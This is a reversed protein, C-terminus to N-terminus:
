PWQCIRALTAAGAAPQDGIGGLFYSDATVLALGCLMGPACDAESSCYTTCFQEASGKEDSAKAGGAICGSFGHSVLM